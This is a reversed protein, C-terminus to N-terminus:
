PGSRRAEAREVLETLFATKAVWVGANIYLGKSGAEEALADTWEQVEPFLYYPEGKRSCSLLMDCDHDKLLDIAKGPDDRIVADAADCYLVYEAQCAGGTLYEHLAILKRTNRWPGADTPRWVVFGDIGAYHLSREMIPQDEYDHVLLIALDPPCHLKGKVHGCLLPISIFAPLKTFKPQHIVLATWQHRYILIQLVSICPGVVRRIPDSAKWLTNRVKRVTTRM